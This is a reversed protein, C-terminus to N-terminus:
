TRSAPSTSPRRRPSARRGGRCRGAGCRRASAARPARRPARTGRREVWREVTARLERRETVRKCGRWDEALWILYHFRGPNLVDEDKYIDGIYEGDRYIRVEDAATRAFTLDPRYRGM